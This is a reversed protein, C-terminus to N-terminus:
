IHAFEWFVYDTLMMSTIVLAKEEVTADAPWQAAHNSEALLCRFLGEPDFCGGHSKQIHGVANDAVDDGNMPKLDVLHNEVCPSPAFFNCHNGCFCFNYEIQYKNVWSGNQNLQLNYPVLCCFMAGLCRPVYNGCNWDEVVRGSEAERLLIQDSEGIM